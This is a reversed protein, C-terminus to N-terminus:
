SKVPGHAWGRDLVKALIAERAERQKTKDRSRLPSYDSLAHAPNDAIAGDVGAVLPDAVTGIEMDSTLEDADLVVVGRSDKKLVETRHTFSQEATWQSDRDTSLLDGDAKNPWVAAATPEEADPDFHGKPVNRFLLEGAIPDPM